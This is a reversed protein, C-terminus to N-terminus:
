VMPIAFGFRNGYGSWTPWIMYLTGNYIFTDGPVYDGNFIYVGCQDTANGGHNGLANAEWGFPMLGFGTATLTANPYRTSAASSFGGAYSATTASTATGLTPVVNAGFNSTTRSAITMHVQQNYIKPWATGVQPLASVLSNVRLPITANTATYNLNQVATLDATTGYGQGVARQNTFLAPFIGNTDTNHYDFRTYQTQFFTGCFKTADTYTSGWGSPYSTGNTTAWFFCKDTVYAWFTRVNDAGNSPTLCAVQFGYNNGGLTLPTGASTTITEDLTLSANSSSITGGTIATGVDFYSNKNNSAAKLQTYIKSSSADYVPQEITFEYNQYDARDTYSFHSKTNTPSTTRIILSNAADFASTLLTNYSASTFRSQLASVSTISSTNIIDNLTRLPVTINVNASYSLKIFM